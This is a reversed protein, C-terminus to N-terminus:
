PLRRIISISHQVIVSVTARRRPLRGQRQRSVRLLRAVCAFRFALGHGCIDRADGKGTESCPPLHMGLRQRRDGIGLDNGKIAMALIRGPSSGFFQRVHWAVGVIVGHQRGAPEVNDVDGHGVMNVATEGRGREVGAGVHEQFLREPQRKVLAVLDDGGAGAGAAQHGDIMFQPHRALPAGHTVDDSRAIDALHAILM